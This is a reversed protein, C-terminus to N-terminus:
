ASPDKPGRGQHLVRAPKLTGRNTATLDSERRSALGPDSDDGEENPRNKPRRGERKSLYSEELTPSGAVVCELPCNLEIATTNVRSHADTYRPLSPSCRVADLQDKFFCSM